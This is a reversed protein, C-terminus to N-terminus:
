EYLYKEFDNPYDIEIELTKNLMPHFFSVKKSHLLVRNENIKTNYLKDGILPHNILEFHCRIQHMRGTELTAEVLSYNTYEKILKYNTIAELGLSNKEM